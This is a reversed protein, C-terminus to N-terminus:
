DLKRKLFLMVILGDKSDGYEPGRNMPIVNSDDFLHWNGSDEGRMDLNRRMAVYHGSACNRGRHFVAGYCEYVFPGLMGRYEPRRLREPPQAEDKFASFESLDINDSNFGRIPTTIKNSSHDAGFRPFYIVLYDPFYCMGRLETQMVKTKCEFCDITRDKQHESGFETEQRFIDLISPSEVSKPINLMNLVLFPMPEWYRHAHSSDNHCVRTTLKLGNFMDTVISDDTARWNDWEKACSEWLPLKSREYRQEDDTLYRDGYTPQDRLTSSEDQLRDMLFQHLEQVDQQAHTGLGEDAAVHNRTTSYYTHKLWNWYTRPNVAPATGSSLGEFLTKLLRQLPQQTATDIATEQSATFTPEAGATTQRKKFSKPRKPILGPKYEYMQLHQRLHVSAFFCQLLANSYCSNGLNVMGIRYPPHPPKTISNNKCDSTVDAAFSAAASPRRELVGNSKTRPFAPPPRAPPQTDFKNHIDPSIMSSPGSVVTRRHFDDENKYFPFEKRHKDADVHQVTRVSKIRLADVGRLGIWAELGGFLLKPRLKLRKTHGFHYVTQVFTDLIDGRKYASSRNNYFVVLDYKDRQQFLLHEQEPMSVSLADELEECSKDKALTVDIPEICIVMPALIHGQDFETRERIDVILVKLGGQGLNLYDVLEGATVTLSNTDTTKLDKVINPSTHYPTASPIINPSDVTPPKAQSVPPASGNKGKGLYSMSRPVSSPFDAMSPDSGISPSYIADPPRPMYPVSDGKTTKLPSLDGFPERPGKPRATTPLREQPNTSSQHSPSIPLNLGDIKQTKIRPDQKPASSSTPPNKPTRLASFRAHLENSSPITNFAPSHGNLSKGHLADPKPQVPPPQKRPPDASPRFPLSITPNMPNIPQNSKTGHLRNNAQIDAVLDPVKDSQAQLRKVLTMFRRFLEGTKEAMMSPYENNAKILELAIVCAMIHAEYAVDLRRFDYCTDCEKAYDDARQILKRISMNSNIQAPDPRANSLDEFHKYIRGNRRGPGGGGGTTVTPGGGNVTTRHPNFGGNTVSPSM